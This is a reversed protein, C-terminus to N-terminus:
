RRPTNGEKQEQQKEKQEDAPSESSDEVVKGSVADVNVERIGHSTQIDFSYIIRGNEKELEGSKITGKEKALATQQAQQKSIKAQSQLESQKEGQAFAMAAMLVVAFMGIAAKKM